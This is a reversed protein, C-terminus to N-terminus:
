KGAKGAVSFGQVYAGLACVINATRNQQEAKKPKKFKKEGASIM